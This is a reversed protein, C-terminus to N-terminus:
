ESDDVIDVVFDDLLFCHSCRGFERALATVAEVLLPLFMALFLMEYSDVSFSSEYLVGPLEFGLDVVDYSAMAFAFSVRSGFNSWFRFEFLAAAVYWFIM